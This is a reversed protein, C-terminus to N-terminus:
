GGLTLQMNWDQRELDDFSYTPGDHTGVRFQYFAARPVTTTFSAHCAFDNVGLISEAWTTEQQVYRDDSTLWSAWNVLSQPWPYHWEETRPRFAVDNALSRFADASEVDPPNWEGRDALAQALVQYMLPYFKNEKAELYLKVQQSGSFATQTSAIIEGRENRVTVNAGILAYGGACSPAQLSGILNLAEPTPSVSAASPAAVESARSCSALLVFAMLLFLLFASRFLM